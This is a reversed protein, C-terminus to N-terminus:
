TGDVVIVSCSGGIIWRLLLLLLLIRFQKNKRTAFLLIMTTEPIHIMIHGGNWVRWKFEYQKPYRLLDAYGHRRDMQNDRNIHTPHFPMGMQEMWHKTAVRFDMGSEVGDYLTEDPVDKARAEIKIGPCEEKLLVFIEDWFQLAVDGTIGAEWHMRFQVLDIEPFIQFFKRIASKTYPILNEQSLGWIINAPLDDPAESDDRVMSGYRKDREIQDWLGVGFEIGREHALAILKNLAERNKLQQEASIGAMKVYPFEDLDFFNPYYDHSILCLGTKPM